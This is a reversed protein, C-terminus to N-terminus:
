NTPLNKVELAMQSAKIASLFIQTDRSLVGHAERTGWLYFRRGATCFVWIRPWIGSDPLGGPSPFPLGSWYEQRSFGMSPPAQYAVTWPTEFLRVRGFCGCCERLGFDLGSCARWKSWSELLPPQLFTQFWFPSTGSTSLFFGNRYPLIALHLQLHKWLLQLFNYQFDPILHIIFTTIGFLLTKLM